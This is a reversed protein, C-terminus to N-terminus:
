YFSIFFIFVSVFVFFALFGRLFLKQSEKEKPIPDFGGKSFPNCRLIRWFGIFIGKIIGYKEVVQYTYQSCTPQFRCVKAPFLYSLLGTTPSLTKQYIKILKLVIKRM